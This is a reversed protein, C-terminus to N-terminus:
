RMDDVLVGYIIIATLAALPRRKAVVMAVAYAVHAVM